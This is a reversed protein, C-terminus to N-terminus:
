KGNKYKNIITLLTERDWKFDQAIKHSELWELKVYGIKLSLNARYGILHNSDGTNCTKCEASANSEDFRLMSYTSPMYHGCDAEDTTKVKSCSICKFYGDKSDRERIFRNFVITALKLLEPVSQENNSKRIAKAKSDVKNAQKEEHMTKKYKQYCFPDAFCRKAILMKDPEGCDICKGVPHPISGM